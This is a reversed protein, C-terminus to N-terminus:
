PGVVDLGHKTCMAELRSIRRRLDAVLSRVRDPAHALYAEEIFEQRIDGRLELANAMETILSLPPRVAGTRYDSVATQGKGIQRGLDAETFGHIANMRKIHHDLLSGFVSTKGM